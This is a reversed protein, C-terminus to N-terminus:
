NALASFTRPTCANCSFQSSPKQIRPLLALHDPTPLIPSPPRPSPTTSSPDRRHLLKPRARQRPVPNHLLIPPSTQHFYYHRAKPELPPASISCPITFVRLKLTM